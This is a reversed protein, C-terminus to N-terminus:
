DVSFVQKDLQAQKAAAQSAQAQAPPADELAAVTAAGGAAGGAAGAAGAAAAAAAAAAVGHQEAAATTTLTAAGASQALLTVPTLHMGSLLTVEAMDGVVALGKDTAEQAEAGYRMGVFESAAGGVHGGLTRAALELGEWVAGVAGVTSAAVRCAARGGASEGSSAIAKGVGTEGLAVAASAGLSSAMTAAGQVLGTTVVVVTRTMLRANDLRTRTAPSVTVPPGARSGVLSGAGAAVLRIGKGALDATGVLAARTGQGLREVGVAIGGGIGAVTPHSLEAAIPTLYSARLESHPDAFEHQM